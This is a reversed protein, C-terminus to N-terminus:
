HRKSGVVADCDSDRMLDMFVKINAPDLEMDADIFTVLSGTSQSVGLSLAFGKGANMPYEFVKVAPSQVCRAQSATSDINGDSVVIVEYPVLLKDLESLLRTLNARIRKGERYAPVIVSIEPTIPRSTNTAAVQGSAPHTF